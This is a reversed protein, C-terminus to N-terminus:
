TTFTLKRDQSEFELKLNQMLAIKFYWIKAGFTANAEPKVGIM